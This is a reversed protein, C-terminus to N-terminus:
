AGKKGMNGEPEGSKRERYERRKQRKAEPVDPVRNPRNAHPGSGDSRGTTNKKWVEKDPAVPQDGSEAQKLRQCTKSFFFRFITPLHFPPLVHTKSKPVSNAILQLWIVWRILLSTQLLKQSLGFKATFHEISFNNRLVWIRKCWQWIRQESRRNIGNRM